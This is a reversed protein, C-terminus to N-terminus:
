SGKRKRIVIIEQELMPVLDSTQLILDLARMPELDISGRLQTARALQEAGDPAFRVERGTERGVWNIFDHASQDDLDFEPTVREAWDWLPGHTPIATISTTGSRNISIQQGRNAFSESHEAKIMVQGERVSVALTSGEIGAIYQTGIHHVSGAITQIVLAERPDTTAPVHASDVYIQGSVLEIEAESDFVLQTNENIRIVEGTGMVVVLRADQATSLVQGAFLKGSALRRSESSPENGQHLFINGSQKIVAAVQRMDPIVTERNLMNVSILTAALASAAIGWAVIRKKRQRQRTLGMWKSHLSARIAQEDEAPARKRASAHSFLSELLDDRSGHPVAKGPIENSFGNNSMIM